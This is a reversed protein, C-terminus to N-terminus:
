QFVINIVCDTRARLKIIKECKHPNYGEGNITMNYQGPPLFSTEYVNFTGKFRKTFVPTSGGAKYVSIGFSEPANEVTGVIRSNRRWLKTTRKLYTPKSVSKIEERFVAYASFFFVFLIIISLVIKVAKM